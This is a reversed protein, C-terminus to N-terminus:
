IDTLDGPGLNQEEVEEVEEVKCIRLGDVEVGQPNNVKVKRFYIKYGILDRPTEINKSKLFKINTKNLTFLKQLENRELTLVPQVEIGEGSVQVDVCVYADEESKVEDAQLYNGSFADWSELAKNNEM